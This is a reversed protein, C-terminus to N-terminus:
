RPISRERRQGTGPAVASAGAATAGVLVAPLLPATALGTAGALPGIVAPGTFSGLYAVACVRAVASAANGHRQGAASIAVPLLNAPGAGLTAFGVLGAVPSPIAV